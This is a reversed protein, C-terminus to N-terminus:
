CHNGLGLSKTQIGCQGGERPSVRKHAKSNQLCLLSMGSYPSQVKLEGGLVREQWIKSRHNSSLQFTVRQSAKEPWGAELPCRWASVVRDGLKDEWHKPSFSFLKIMSTEKSVGTEAGQSLKLLTPVKNTM